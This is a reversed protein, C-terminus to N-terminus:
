DSSSNKSIKKGLWGAASGCLGGFLGILLFAPVRSILSEKGAYGHLMFVFSAAFGFAVSSLIKYKKSDYALSAAIAGWPLIIWVPGGVFGMIVGVVLGIIIGRYERM